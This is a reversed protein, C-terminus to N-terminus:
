CVGEMELGSVAMFKHSGYKKRIAQLTQSRANLWPTIVRLCALLSEETYKTYHVLTPSQTRTFIHPRGTLPIFKFYTAM